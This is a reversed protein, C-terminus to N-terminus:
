RMYCKLQCGICVRFNLQNLIWGMCSVGTQNRPLFSGRSFHQVIWELIRPSGQHSLQYLIQRCHPLGPNSGQTSFIRQLLAHCGVETNRGQSDGHVSSCPPSCDMPKCDSSVSSSLVACCMSWIYISDHGVRQLRMSQLM